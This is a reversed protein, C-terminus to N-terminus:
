AYRNVEDVVIPLLSITKLRYHPAIDRLLQKDLAAVNELELRYGEILLDRLELADRVAEKHIYLLDAVAKEKTAILFRVGDIGEEQTVGLPLCSINLYSYSFRGIPTRFEKSRKSTMSTVEAVAEPILGYYQLAYERSIYSPGYIQNALVELSYPRRAYDAGFVFLGKKIRILQKKRLLRTIVDRPAAYDQLAAMLFNYDLEEGTALKRIRDIPPTM